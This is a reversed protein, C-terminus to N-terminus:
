GDAGTSGGGAHGPKRFVAQSWPLNRLLGVDRVEPSAFGGATAIRGLLETTSQWHLSEFAGPTFGETFGGLTDVIFVGGPRLVRRVEGVLRDLDFAHDLSNTFVADISGDAFVLAHFDGTLVYPNAPGPNLDIGVAFHGLGILAKVETGLRAALCLVARAERLALCGEFHARFEALDEAEDVLRREVIKDLKSAQHELYAEYSAYRRAAFGGEHVWEPSAFAAARRELKEARKRARAEAGLGYRVINSVRKLIPM